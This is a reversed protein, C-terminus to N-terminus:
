VQHHREEVHVPQHGRQQGGQCSPAADDQGLAPLETRLDEPAVDLLVAGRPVRRHGGDVLDQERPGSLGLVVLAYRQAEDAAAAGRESRGNQLPQLVGELGGHQLGIGHSLSGVLHGGVRQGLVARSLWPADALAGVHLNGDQTLVALLQRWALHALDADLPLVDRGPVVVIRLGRLLGEHVSPEVCTILPHKVGVTVKGEGAPELFEDVTTALLDGGQLDVGHEQCAFDHGLRHGKGRGILLITLFHIRRHHQPRPLLGRLRLDQGERLLAQAVELHRLAEEDRVRQRLRRRALDLAAEDGLVEKLRGRLQSPAARMRAGAGAKFRM